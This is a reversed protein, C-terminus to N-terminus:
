NQVKASKLSITTMDLPKSLQRRAIKFIGARAESASRFNSLVSMWGRCMRWGVQIRGSIPQGGQLIAAYVVPVTRRSLDFMDKLVAEEEESSLKSTEAMVAKLNKGIPRTHHMAIEDLIATRFAGAEAWRCWIYDLGYGSMTGRFLPLAKMLIDRHMCPAMIEIYNTYRLVFGPCQSFVFHSFYSDLTLSPQAIRLGYVLMSEFLANVDSASIDLDDDPLWFYDYQSLDRDSLTGFLGDWKGGKVLVAEVGPEPVFRAYADDSFYSVLLDYNRDEYGIEQWRHHLSKSGARVVVLNKKM